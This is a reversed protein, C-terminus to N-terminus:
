ASGAQGGLEGAGSAQAAAQGSAGSKNRGRKAEKGSGNGDDVEMALWARLRDDNLRGAKRAAQFVAEIAERTLACTERERDQNALSEVKNLVVLLAYEVSRLTTELETWPHQSKSTMM